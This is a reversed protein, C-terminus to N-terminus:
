IANTIRRMDELDVDQYYRLMEASTHGILQQKDKDPADIGKLLTAFTHRCCHPTYKHRGNEDIPNEIGIAELAPYFCENKFRDYSLAGGDSACFVRGSERDGILRDIIPQIKPSITVVRNKGADTKSGGRFCRNERDYDRSIEIALMESPRYGLMYMCYIYDAYPVKGVAQEIAERQAAAFGERHGGAEGTVVLFQALNRDKPIYDRPIGYKYMLGCLAKMNERTRRGKPCDDLCDQLDDIDILSMQQWWVPEFYKMASAYCNMTSKSKDHTPQWLDYLEHFTVAKDTRKGGTKLTPIYELAEAKTAFGGKTRRIPVRKEMSADSWKWGLIVEATWTRGRKFVTGSGNPRSKAKRKRPTTIQKTGCLHCYIAEEVLQAGCKKCQM